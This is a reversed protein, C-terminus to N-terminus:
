PTREKAHDTGAQKVCCDCYPERTQGDYGAPLCDCRVCREVEDYRSDVAYFRHYCRGERKETEM